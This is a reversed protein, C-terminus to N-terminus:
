RKRKKNNEVMEIEIDPDTYSFLDPIKAWAKNMPFIGCCSGPEPCKECDIM